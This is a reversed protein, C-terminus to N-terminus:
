DRDDFRTTKRQMAYYWILAFVGIAAIGVILWSWMTSNMGLLTAETSTRDTSYNSEINYMIPSTNEFSETADNMMTNMSSQTDNIMNETTTKADNTIDTVTNTTREGLNNMDTTLETAFCFTFLSITLLFILTSLLIKNFM